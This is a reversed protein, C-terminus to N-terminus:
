YKRIITFMWNTLSVLVVFGWFMRNELHLLFEGMCVAFMSYKRPSYIIRNTRMAAFHCHDNNIHVWPSIYCCTWVYLVVDHCRSFLVSLLMYMYYLLLLRECLVVM